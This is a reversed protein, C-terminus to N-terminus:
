RKRVLIPRSRTRRTPRRRLPSARGPFRLPGSILARVVRWAEGRPTVAPSHPPEVNAPARCSQVTRSTPWDLHALDDRKEHQRCAEGRCHRSRAPRRIPRDGRAARDQEHQDPDEAERPRARRQAFEARGNPKRAASSTSASPQRRAPRNSASPAHIASPERPRGVRSSAITNRAAAPVVATRLRSAVTTSNVGITNAVAALSRVLARGCTYAHECRALLADSSSGTEFRVLRSANRALPSENARNPPKIASGHSTASAISHTTSRRENAPSRCRDPGRDVRATSRGSSGVNASATTPSVSAPNTSLESTPIAGTQTAVAPATTM